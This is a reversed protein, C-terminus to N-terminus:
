EAADELSSVMQALNDRMLVRVLFGPLVSVRADILYEVRTQGEDLVELKWGGRTTFRPVESAWSVTRVGGSELGAGLDHVLTTDLPFRMLWFRVVGELEVPGPAAGSLSEVQYDYFVNDYAEPLREYDTLPGWLADISRDFVGACRVVPASDSEGPWRVIECRVGEDSSSPEFPEDVVLTGRLYSTTLVAVGVLVLAATVQKRRSPSM